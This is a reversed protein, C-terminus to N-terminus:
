RKALALWGIANEKEIGDYIKGFYYFFLSVPLFILSVLREAWALGAIGKLSRVSLQWFVDVLRQGFLSFVGGIREIALVQFGNKELLYKLAYNTFRYYDHPQYHLPWCQPVSLYLYGNDKLARKIQALAQEPEPLHELVETCLISDFHQDPFPLAEVNAVVDPRAQAFIDIGIYRCSSPLSRQYPKLGCGVDLIMGKFSSTHKRLASLQLNKIIFYPSFLYPNRSM